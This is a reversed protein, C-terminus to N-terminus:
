QSKQWTGLGGRVFALLALPLSHGKSCWVHCMAKFLCSSGNSLQPPWLSLRASALWSSDLILKSFCGPGSAGLPLLLGLLRAPSLDLSGSHASDTVLM